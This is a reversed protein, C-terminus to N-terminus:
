YIKIIYSSVFAKQFRRNSFTKHCAKTTHELPSPPNVRYFPYTKFSQDLLVKLFSAVAAGIWVNEKISLLKITFKYDFVIKMIM